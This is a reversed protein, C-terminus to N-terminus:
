KEQLFLTGKMGLAAPVRVSYWALVQKGVDAVLQPESFLGALGGTNSRTTLYLVGIKRGFVELRAIPGVAFVDVALEQFSVHTFPFMAIRLRRYGSVQSLAPVLESNVNNHFWTNL